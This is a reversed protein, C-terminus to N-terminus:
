NIIVGQLLKNFIINKETDSANIGDLDAGSFVSFGSFSGITGQKACAFGVTKGYTTPSFNDALRPYAIILKPQSDMRMAVSPANCSVTSTSAKTHAITRQTNQYQKDSVVAAATNSVVGTLGMGAMAINGTAGGIVATAASAALGVGIKINNAKQQTLQQSNALLTNVYEGANRVVLQIPVGVQGDITDIPIGDREIFTTSAGTLVDVTMCTTLYHDYWDGPNIPITGHWPVTLGMSTYPAFDRFDDYYRKMLYPETRFVAFQNGGTLKSGTVAVIESGYWNTQGQTETNALQIYSGPKIITGFGMHTNINFPFYMLSLIQESPYSGNFIFQLDYGLKELSYQGEGPEKGPYVFPGKPNTVEECWKVLNKIGTDSMAYYNGSNLAISSYENYTYKDSPREKDPATPKKNPDFPNQSIDTWDWQKQTRNAEGQTYDGHTVGEDDITGLFIYESDLKSTWTAGFYSEAFYGGLYAAQRRAYEQLGSIGGFEELTTWYSWYRSDDSSRNYFEHHLMGEPGCVGMYYYKYSVTSSIPVGFNYNVGGYLLIPHTSITLSSGVLSPNDAYVNISRPSANTSCKTPQAYRLLHVQKEPNDPDIFEPIDNLIVPYPYYEGPIGRYNSAGDEGDATNNRAWPYCFIGVIIPYQEYYYKDTSSNTIHGNIYTYLDVSISNINGYNDRNPIKDLARIFLVYVMNMPMYPCPGVKTDPNSSNYEQNYAWAAYDVEGRFTIINNYAAYNSPVYMWAMPNVGKKSMSVYFSEGDTNGRKYWNQNAFSCNDDVGIFAISNDIPTNIAFTGKTRGAELSSTKSFTQGTEGLFNCYQPMNERPIATPRDYVLWSDKAGYVAENLAM